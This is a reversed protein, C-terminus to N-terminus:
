KEYKGEEDEEEKKKSDCVRFASLSFPREYHYSITSKSM